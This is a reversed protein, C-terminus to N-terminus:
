AKKSPMPRVVATDRPQFKVESEFIAVTSHWPRGDDDRTTEQGVHLRKLGHGLIHNCADEFRDGDLSEEGCIPCLRSKNTSVYVLQQAM